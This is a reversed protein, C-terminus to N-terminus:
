REEPPQPLLPRLSAILVPIDNVVVNWLTDQRIEEYQHTIVNRQGIIESWRIEAHAQRFEPSLRRAAEGIVELSREVALQLLRDELYEEATVGQTIEQLKTATDLIDWLYAPDRSEPPM